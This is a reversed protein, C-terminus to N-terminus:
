QPLRLPLVIVVGCPVEALIVPVLPVIALPLVISLFSFFLCEDELVNTKCQYEVASTLDQFKGNICPSCATVTGSSAFKGQGCATCAHSTAVNSGQYQGATCAMCIKSTSAAIKGKGCKNCVYSTAQPKEQSQGAGCTSCVSNANASVTGAGCTKQLFFFLHFFFM